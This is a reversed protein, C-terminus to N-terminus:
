RRPESGALVVPLLLLYTWRCGVLLSPVGKKVSNWRQMADTLSAGREVVMLSAAKDDVM